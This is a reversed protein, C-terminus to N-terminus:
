LDDKEDDILGERKALWRPLTMMDGDFEIEDSPLWVQDGDVTEVLTGKGKERIIESIEIDVTTAM